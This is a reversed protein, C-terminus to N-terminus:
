DLVSFDSSTPTGFDLGAPVQILIVNDQQSEFVRLVKTKNEMEKLDRPNKFSM